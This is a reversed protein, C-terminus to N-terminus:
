YDKEKQSKGLDGTGKRWGPSRTGWAQERLVEAHTRSGMKDEEETEERMKSCQTHSTLKTLDKTQFVVSM